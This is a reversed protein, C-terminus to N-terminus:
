RRRRLPRRTRHYETRLTIARKIQLQEEKKKVKAHGHTIIVESGEKFFYLRCGSPKFEWIDDTLRKVRNTPLSGLDAYSEWARVLKKHDQPADNNLRNLYRDAPCQGNPRELLHIRYKGRTPTYQLRLPM